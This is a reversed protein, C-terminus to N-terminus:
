NRIMSQVWNKAGNQLFQHVLNKGLELASKLPNQLDLICEMQKELHEKLDPSFLRARLHLQDGQLTAYAGLPLSCGGGLQALLAREAHTCLWTPTDNLLKLHSHWPSNKHCQIAIAGQGAAPLIEDLTFIQSIYKELKLRKLGAYALITADYHRDQERLNDNQHFDSDNQNNVSTVIGAEAPMVTAKTPKVNLVKKIRTEVNGRIDEFQLDPRLVGIQASRRKSCSGVIAKPALQSLLQKDKSILVDRVDERQLIAAIILDRENEVTMDKLSHVAVDAHGKNLANELEQTFLGKTEFATLPRNQDNDARTDFFSTQLEVNPFYKCLEAAFLKLQAQSLQSSRACIRLKKPM